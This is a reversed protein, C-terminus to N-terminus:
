KTSLNNIVLFGFNLIVSGKWGANGGWYYILCPAQKMNESIFVARNGENKRKKEGANDDKKRRGVYKYFGLAPPLSDHVDM